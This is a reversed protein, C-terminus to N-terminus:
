KTRMKGEQLTERSAPVSAVGRREAPVCGQSGPARARPAQPSLAGALSSRAAGRECVESPEGVLLEATLLSSRLLSSAWVSISCLPEM